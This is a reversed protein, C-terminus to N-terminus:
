ANRFAVQTSISGYHWRGRFNKGLVLRVVVADPTTQTFSLNTTYKTPDYAPQGNPDLLISWTGGATRRYEINGNNQRVSHQIGDVDMYDIQTPTIVATRAEAIGRRNATGVVNKGWVMQEVVQRAKTTIEINTSYEYGSRELLYNCFFVSGLLVVSLAGAVMTEVLTM